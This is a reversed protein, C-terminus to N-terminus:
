PSHGPSGKSVAFTSKPLPSEAPNIGERAWPDLNTIRKFDANPVYQLVIVEVGNKGLGSKQTESSKVILDHQSRHYSTSGLDGLDSTVM